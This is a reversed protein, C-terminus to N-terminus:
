SRRNRGSERNWKRIEEKTHPGYKDKMIGLKVKVHVTIIEVKEKEIDLVIVGLILVESDMLLTAGFSFM